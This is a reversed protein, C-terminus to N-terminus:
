FKVIRIKEANGNSLKVEIIYTGNEFKSLDLKMINSNGNKAVFKTGVISFVECSLITIEENLSLVEVLDNTPNPYVYVVGAGGFYPFKDTEVGKKEPLVELKQLELEKCDQYYFCLVGNAMASSRGITTERISRLENIENDTLEDWRRSETAIINRITHFRMYNEHEYNESEDFNFQTPIETLIHDAKTYNGEFHETEALSYKSIPTRIIEYWAKLQAIDLSVTDSLIRFISNSSLESMQNGLEYLSNSVFAARDTLTQPLNKNGNNIQELIVNYNNANYENMLEVKALLM